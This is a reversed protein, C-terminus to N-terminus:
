RLRGERMPRIIIDMGAPALVTWPSTRVHDQAAAVEDAVRVGKARLLGWGQALMPCFPMVSENPQRDFLDGSLLALDFLEVDLDDRIFGNVSRVRNILDATAYAYAAYLGLTPSKLVRINDM